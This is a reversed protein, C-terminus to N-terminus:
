RRLSLGVGFFGHRNSPDILYEAYAATVSVRVGIAQALSPWRATDAGALVTRLSVVPPGVLPLQIRDIPVKYQGDLYILEDGGRSLMNITPISGLGGVYAWRQRPTATGPGPVIIAQGPGIVEVHDNAFKGSATAVFHGDFRLSQTGFTPFAITGDFTLQAFSRSGGSRPNFGGVEIEARARTTIGDAEHELRAGVLASIITGSDIPPNPRLMDERDRRGEFSWPGGTAFSDPRVSEAREWRAGIYPTLTSASWEWAHSLSLEARTARFYNRNDDGSTLTALSNLFDSWIWGENTFTSRRVGLHLITRRDLSLEAGFAPDIRGLQSRYTVRPEVRLPTNPVAILPAFPLGVGDTRSYDITRIGFIGPLTVAAAPRDILSVYRLEYGGRVPAVEYTFDQFSRVEGGIEAMASAYVGGGIAIARGTVRAHPHVHLDGGVVIVDGVVRGDVVANRTLVIVTTQYTTDRRLVAEGAGPPVIVHPGALARELVQPGTGPGLDVIRLAPAQAHALAGWLLLAGLARVAIM